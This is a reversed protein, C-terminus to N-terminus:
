CIQKKKRRKLLWSYLSSAPSLRAGTSYHLIRGVGCLSYAVLYLRFINRKKDETMETTGKLQIKVTQQVLVVAM